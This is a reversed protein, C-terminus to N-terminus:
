TVADAELQRVASVHRALEALTRPILVFDDFVSDTDTSWANHTLFLYVTSVRSYAYSLSHLLPTDATSEECVLVARLLQELVFTFEEKADEDLRLRVFQHRAADREKRQHSFGMGDTVADSFSVLAGFDCGAESNSGHVLARSQQAVASARLAACRSLHGLFLMAGAYGALALAGPLM